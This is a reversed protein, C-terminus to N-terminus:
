SIGGVILVSSSYSVRDCKSVVHRGVRDLAPKEGLIEHPGATCRLLASIEGALARSLDVGIRVLNVGDHKGQLANGVSSSSSVGSVSVSSPAAGVWAAM